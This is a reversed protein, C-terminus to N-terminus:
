PGPPPLDLASVKVMSLRLGAILEVEGALAVTPPAMNVSVTFPVLKILVETTSQFPAGADVVKTLLVSSVARIVAASMAVGPVALIVTVLGAGPPPAEAGLVNVMSLGTGDTIEIEGDLAIAPPLENVRV